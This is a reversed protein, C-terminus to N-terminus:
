TTPGGSPAEMTDPPKVTFVGKAPLVVLQNDRRLKDEEAPDMRVLAGCSLLADMEKRIAGKWAEVNEKVEALSM